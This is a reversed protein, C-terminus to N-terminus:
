FNSRLQEELWLHVRPLQELFTYRYYSLGNEVEDHVQLKSLRLMATQWLELVQRKLGTEFEDKEEATLEVRDRWQLLRAIEREASASPPRASRKSASFAPTARRRVCCM